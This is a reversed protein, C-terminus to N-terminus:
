EKEGALKEYDIEEVIEQEYKPKLSNTKRFTDVSTKLEEQAQVYEPIIRSQANLQREVLISVWDKVEAETMFDPVGKIVVDVM